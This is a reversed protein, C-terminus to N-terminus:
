QAQLYNLSWIMEHCVEESKVTSVNNVCVMIIAIDYLVLLMPRDWVTGSVLPTICGPLFHFMKACYPMNTITSARLM